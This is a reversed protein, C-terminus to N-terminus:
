RASFLKIMTHLDILIPPHTRKYSDRASVAGGAAIARKIAQADGNTAAAFLGTYAREETAGPPVQAPVSLSAIALVLTVTTKPLSTTM